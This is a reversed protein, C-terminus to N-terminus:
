PTSIGIVLLLTTVALLPYIVKPSNYFSTDINMLVLMVM